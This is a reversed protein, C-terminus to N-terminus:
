TKCRASTPLYVAYFCNILLVHMRIFFIIRVGYGAYACLFNIDCLKASLMLDMTTVCNQSCIWLLRFNMDGSGALQSTCLDVILFVIDLAKLESAFRLASKRFKIDSIFTKKGCNFAFMKVFDTLGLKISLM